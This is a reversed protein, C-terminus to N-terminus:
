TTHQCNWSKRVTNNGSKMLLWKLLSSIFRNMESLTLPNVMSPMSIGHETSNNEPVRREAVNVMVALNKVGLVWSTSCCQCM